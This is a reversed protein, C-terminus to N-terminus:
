RLNHGLRMAWWCYGAVNALVWIVTFESCEGSMDDVVVSRRLFNDKEKAVCADVTSGLGWGVSKEGWFDGSGTDGNGV